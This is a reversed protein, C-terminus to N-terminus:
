EIEVVAPVKCGKILLMGVLRVLLEIDVAALLLEESPSELELEDALGITLLELTNTLLALTTTLLALVTVLRESEVALEVKILLFLEVCCGNKEVFLIGNRVNILLMLLAVLLLVVVALLLLLLGM